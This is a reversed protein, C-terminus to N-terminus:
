ETLRRGTLALFVDELSSKTVKLSKIPAGINYSRNVIVPVDEDPNSSHIRLKNNEAVVKWGENRLMNILKPSLRYFDIEIVSKPGYKLKLEEPMGKAIIKGEDIIYIYDSLYDAEDMYHTAILIATGKRKEELIVNWMFRRINPDLGTTPEDLILIKPSHLLSIIISLRKKMGGSYKGVPRKAHELLEMRELLEKGKRKAERGSLGYLRAYFMINDWANLEELLGPEQPCYGIMSKIHPDIPEKGNILVRGSNPKYIGTMIKILTTKGAGNPGLLSTIVGKKLSISVNDLVKRGGFLKLVNKVILPKDM